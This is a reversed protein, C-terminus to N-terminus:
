RYASANITCGNCQRAELEALSRNAQKELQSGREREGSARLVEAYIMEVRFYAVNNRGRAADVIALGRQGDALARQYEGTMALAQARLAYGVGLMFYAPGHAHTWCDLSRQINSIAEQYKGDHIALASAASYMVAIDDERLAAAHKAGELAKALYRRDAKFHNQAANVVALDTATITIGMANGLTEYIQNAREYMKKASELQGTGEELSGLNTLSAAYEAHAQPLSRYSEIAAQYCARAKAFIELDLYSSGLVNWAFGAQDPADINSRLLPELIEVAAKPQGATRLRDAQLIQAAISQEGQAPAHLLSLALLWHVRM